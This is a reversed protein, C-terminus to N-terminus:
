NRLVMLKLYYYIVPSVFLLSDFRDLVGGHGPILSSSDKVGSDRKLMSEALDGIPGVIGAVLGLVLGQYLTLGTALWKAGALGAAVSFLIGGVAGEVSKGPSVRAYLRRRGLLRGIFFAGTDGSWTVLFVCLVLSSGLAPDIQRLLGLHSGFGAVYVVGLLTSGVNFIAGAPGKLLEVTLLALLLTAMVPGLAEARGHFTLAVLALGGAIGLFAHPSGGRARIMRYFEIMGGLVMALLFALFYWGGRTSVFVLLPIFVVASLFRAGLSSAGRQRKDSV